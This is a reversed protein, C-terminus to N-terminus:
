SVRASGGSICPKGTDGRRHGPVCIPNIQSARLVRNAEGFEVRHGGARVHRKVHFLGRVLGPPSTPPM